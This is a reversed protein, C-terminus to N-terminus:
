REIAPLQAEASSSKMCACLQQSSAAAHWRGWCAAPQKQHLHMNDPCM